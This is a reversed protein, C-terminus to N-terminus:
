LRYVEMESVTFTKGGTLFTNTNQGSPCQYANNLCPSCNNSNAGSIVCLDYCNGGGFVPGYSSSCYMAYVGQGSKLPM